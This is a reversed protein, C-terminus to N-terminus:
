FIKHKRSATNFENNCCYDGEKRLCEYFCFFACLSCCDNCKDCVPLYYSFIIKNIDKPLEILIKDLEEFKLKPQEDLLKNLMKEEYFKTM